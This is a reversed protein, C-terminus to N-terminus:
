EEDLERNLRIVGDIEECNFMEFLIDLISPHIFILIILNTAAIRISKQIRLKEYYKKKNLEKEPHSKCGYIAFIITWVIYSCLLVAFPLISIIIVRYYYLPLTNADMDQDTRNDLFCDFSIFQQPAEAAPEATDFVSSFTNPWDLKFSYIIVIMQIHNVM